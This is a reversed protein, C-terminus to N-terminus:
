SKVALLHRRVTDLSTNAAMQRVRYREDGFNGGKVLTEGTQADHLAVWVTGLPTLSGDGGPGALGTVALGLSAGTVRCVGIAMARATPESVVGDRTLDERSIGLLATKLQTQYVCVGGVFHSSAGPIATLRAAIMGGTCSEAVALTRDHQALLDLVVGELNEVDVGYVIDGLTDLIDKVVPETLAYAQEKTDASATVRLMVEGEKAYPAITPNSASLMKERLRQEVDSEGRGFIRVNRSVLAKESLKALYPMACVRFMPRCERPPGPLLLVHKGGALFACGPATGWNNEFVTCGEPLYAQQRNNETVPRGVQKFFSEIRAWTPAHLVLAQGFAECVTQKTLDDYTPGLGGTTIIVDARSRAIDLAQVLRGVNDGVTTHFYCNLGLEGLGQSIDQADTNAINGLLLETGVAIIEVVLAM